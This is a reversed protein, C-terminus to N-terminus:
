ICVVDRRIVTWSLGLESNMVHIFDVIAYRMPNGYDVKDRWDPVLFKAVPKEAEQM